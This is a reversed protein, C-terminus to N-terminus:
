AVRKRSRWGYLTLGLLGAFLLPVTGPEPVDQIDGAFGSSAFDSSGTGFDEAVCNNSILNADLTVAGNRALARGCVITASNNMTISDLALINGAFVTEGGLTASTGVQWFVGNGAGGNIINVISSSATTLTSFIQFVFLANADGQADLTLTGTLQASSSFRYVGANLPGVSGLDQGSLNSTFALGALSNYAATLDLQAQQAAADTQHVGTGGFFTVTELGTISTGPFLGLDGQISTDGINTVTSGGLVAFNAASGLPGASAVSSSYVFAAFPVALVM